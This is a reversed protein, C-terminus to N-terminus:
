FEMSYIDEGECYQYVGYVRSPHALSEQYLADAKENLEHLIHSCSYWNLLALSLQIDKLLMSLLIDLVTVKENVWDVIFKSDGMM